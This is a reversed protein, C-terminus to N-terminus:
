SKSHLKEWFGRPTLIEIPAPSEMETLDRDGTVLVDALAEIVEALVQADDPDRVEFEVPSGSSVVASERRLLADAEDAVDVPVKMKEILVGRLEALITEGLVLQHETLVVRLVDACIGRTTFASVLVNTDLAVRL